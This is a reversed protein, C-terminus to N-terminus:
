ETGGGLEDRLWGLVDITTALGLSTGLMLLVAQEIEAITAGAAVARNCHVRFGGENLTAAFGALMVLQRQKDESEAYGDIAGRLSRYADAIEPSYDRLRDLNTILPRHEGNPTM